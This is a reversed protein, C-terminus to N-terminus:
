FHVQFFPIKVKKKLFVAMYVGKLLLNDIKSKKVIKGNQKRYKVYKKLKELDFIKTNEDM